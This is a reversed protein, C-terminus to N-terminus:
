PYYRAAIKKLEVWDVIETAWTPKERWYDFSACSETPGTVNNGAFFYELSGDSNENCVYYGPGYWNVVTKPEAYRSSM